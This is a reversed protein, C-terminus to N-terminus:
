TASALGKTKIAAKDKVEEIRDKASDKVDEAKRTLKNKAASAKQKITQRTEKGSKPALLVGAALGAAAGALTGVAAGKLTSGIKKQSTYNKENSKDM